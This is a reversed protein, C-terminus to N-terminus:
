GNYIGIYCDCAVGFLILTNSGGLVALFEVVVNSGTQAYRNALGAGMISVATEYTSIAIPSATLLVGSSSDRLQFHTPTPAQTETATDYPPNANWYFAQLFQVSSAFLSPVYYQSISPDYHISPRHLNTTTAGLSLPANTADKLVYRDVAALPQLTIAVTQQYIISTPYITPEAQSMDLRLTLVQPQGYYAGNFPTSPSLTVMGTINIVRDRTTTYLFYALKYKNAVASWVPVISIKVGAQLGNAIVVLDAEATVYTINDAALPASMVENTDLYYKALLKQRLGPYSPIFDEAGYLFCQTQDIPATRTYGNSYTLVVQLGLSAVTQNEYIYIENNQRSQTSTIIASTIIPEPSIMENIIISQKAFASVLAIQAGQSNFVELFIEQGDTLASQVSCPTPYSAGRYAIGTPGVVQAMPVLSGTYNGSADYHRSLIIQNPGPNQVLRYSVVDTGFVVLRTDPRVTIPMTRLDYYVRFIDNGYSIVSVLSDAPNTNSVLMRAPRLTSVHTTPDVADVVYITNNNVVDIVLCGVIPIIKGVAPTVTPDYLDEMRIVIPYQPTFLTIGGTTSTM